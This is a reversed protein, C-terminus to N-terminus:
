ASREDPQDAGALSDGGGAIARLQDISQRILRSVHMQSVGVEEAIEAQTREEFFRLYLIKREREPLTSLLARLSAREPAMTVEPDVAGLLEARRTEGEGDSVPEDLSVGQYATRGVEMAELVDEETCGMTEALETITPSRGLEQSLRGVTQGLELYTEQVRRPVQVAWGRDRFHRKLEGIITSAAFTTFKVGREPDFREVAKVLALSAVQELDEIPEGRRAYRHALRRAFSVHEEILRDRVAKDGTESYETFEQDTM